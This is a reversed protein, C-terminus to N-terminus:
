VAEPWLQHAHSLSTCADETIERILKEAKGNQHHAGIGCFTINQNKDEVDQMFMNEAFRGNDADYNCVKVGYSEVRRKYAQKAELTAERTMDRMLHTYVFDTAHDMFVTAGVYRAKMLHGKVQPILGPHPSEFQDTSKNAGPVNENDHVIHRQKSRNRWPRKHQKGFICSACPPLKVKQFKKPIIGKQALRHLSTESSHKLKEYILRIELQDSTVPASLKELIQDLGDTNVKVLDPRNNGTDTPYDENDTRFQDRELSLQLDDLSLLDHDIDDNVVEFDNNPIINVGKSVFNDPFSASSDNDSIINPISKARVNKSTHLYPPTCPMCIPQIKSLLSMGSTFGENVSIIPIGENRHFITKMHKMNDWMLITVDDFTISLAGHNNREAQSRGAVWKQPSLLNIQAEPVYLVNHITFEHVLTGDGLLTFQITGYETAPIKGGIGQHNVGNLPTIDSIFLSRDACVHESSGGDVAFLVSDLDFNLGPNNLKTKNSMSLIVNSSISRPRTM